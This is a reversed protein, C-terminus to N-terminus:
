FVGSLSAEPIQDSNPRPLLSRLEFDMSFGTLGSIGSTKVQQLQYLWIVWKNAQQAFVLISECAPLWALPEAQSWGRQAM